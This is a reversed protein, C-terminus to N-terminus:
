LKSAKGLPKGQPLITRKFSANLVIAAAGYLSCAAILFESVAAMNHFFDTAVGFTSLALGLFLFNILIFIVFLVKNTQSAAVTMFLTFVLYGAYAFGLQKMDVADALQPGFVGLNILWTTAIGMWFLGYACFATGGFLNNKKFDIFGAILQAIAGLFIAWPLILAVGDTLGLKQSSAVLTVMALGFLGIASPDATIIKVNQENM